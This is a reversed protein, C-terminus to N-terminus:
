CKAKGGHGAGALGTGAEGNSNMGCSVNPRKAAKSNFIGMKM